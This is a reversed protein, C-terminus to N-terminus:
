LAISIDVATGNNIILSNIKKPSVGQLLMGDTIGTLIVAMNKEDDTKIFDDTQYWKTFDYNEKELIKKEDNSQPAFRALFEGKLIKAIMANVVGEPSGGVGLLADVKPQHMFKNESIALVAGAIDGAPIAIMRAGHKIIAQKINSHRHKDLLYIVLDKTKKELIDALHPLFTEYNLEGNLFKKDIKGKAYPPLAIKDMYYSKGCDMMTNKPSLALVVLSNGLGHAFFSTCELPDIALDYLWETNKDGVMEGRYLAPANDKEGEGIIVKAQFPAKDFGQRLHHVCVGDAMDKDGAGWLPLVARATSAALQHLFELHLKQM